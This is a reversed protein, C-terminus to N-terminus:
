ADEKDVRGATLRPDHVRAQEGVVVTRPAAAASGMSSPYTRTEAGDDAMTVM